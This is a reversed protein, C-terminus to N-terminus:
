NQSLPCAEIPKGFEDYVVNMGSALSLYTGVANFAPGGYTKPSQLVQLLTPNGAVTPSAIVDNYPTTTPVPWQSAGWNVANARWFGPSCWAPPRPAKVFSLSFHSVDKLSVFEIVTTATPPDVTVFITETGAKACYGSVLYGAPATVDVHADAVTLDYKRSGADNGGSLLTWAAGDWVWDGYDPCIVIDPPGGSGQAQAATGAVTLSVLAMAGIGIMGLLRRMDNGRDSDWRTPPEQRSWEEITDGSDSEANPRAAGPM